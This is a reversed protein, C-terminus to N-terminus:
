NNNVKSGKVNVPGSGKIDIKAGSIAIDGSKKLVITASGCKITLEDAAELLAKAKGGISLDKTASITMADESTIGLAKGTTVQGAEAVKIVLEKGVDIQKSGGVTESAAGGVAMAIAGGVEIGAAGGVSANLAGGVSVQMVAGVTMTKNSGVTESANTAITETRNSGITETHDKGVVVTQNNGVTVSMDNGITEKHDHGITITEDNDVNITEDHKVHKSRDNGVEHTEDHGVTQSKDNEVAIQWDKQAHIYIQESGAADEFRLENSGDGGPSSSTKIGSQTKNDPLSYPSANDGNYVCGTILPRDPNGELFEVVVEMGVRPIFQAGWAPGAWRQAVRIWCSSTDDYPPDEDWYFQVCVRGSEDVHIEEGSPGTVIATQPGRVHPKPTLAAPRLVVSAPVCEFMNSYGGHAGSQAELSPLASPDHGEHEVRILLLEEDLQELVHGDPMFKLGARFGIANGRGFGRRGPRTLAAQHDAARDALDDNFYRRGGHLYVRRTRQLEDPADTESDLLQTPTRWDFDRRLVGTSTVRRRWEIAQVSEIDAEGPNHVIMPFVDSTDINAASLLQTGDDILRLQEADLEDDHVFIYSIGEEELLRVVFALNSEHYQACYERPTSGRQVSGPDYTRDYVGLEAGLVQEVIDLVSLDQFMRTHIQQDLLAFAPRITLRLMLHDGSLGLWDIATIIGYVSRIFEERVLNIQADHGLLGEFAYDVDATVIDAVITYPESVAETMRFRHVRVDAPLTGTGSELEYGLTPLQGRAPKDGSPSPSDPPM